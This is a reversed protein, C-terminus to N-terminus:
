NESVISRARVRRATEVAEYALLSSYIADYMLQWRKLRQPKSLHSWHTVDCHDAGNAAIQEALSDKRSQTM